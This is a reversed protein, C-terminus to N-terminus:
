ISRIGQLIRELLERGPGETGVTAHVVLDGSSALDGVLVRAVGIPMRALAAIEAVSRPSTCLELVVRHDGQASADATASVLTEFELEVRPRTRGGSRVFPRVLSFEETASDAAPREPRRQQAPQPVGESPRQDTTTEQALPESAATAVPEAAAQTRARDRRKRRGASGFRAGTAGVVPWEDDDNM